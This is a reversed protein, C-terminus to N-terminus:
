DKEEEEEDANRGMREGFPEYERDGRTYM